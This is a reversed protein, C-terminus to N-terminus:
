GPMCDRLCGRQRGGIVSVCGKVCTLIQVSYSKAYVLLRGRVCEHVHVSASVCVCVYVCARECVYMCAHVGM